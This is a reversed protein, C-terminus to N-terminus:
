WNGADADPPECRGTVGAGPALVFSDQGLCERRVQAVMWPSTLCSSIKILIFYFIDSLQKM